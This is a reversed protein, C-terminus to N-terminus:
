PAFINQIQARHFTTVYDTIVCHPRQEFVCSSNKICFLQNDGANKDTVEYIVTRTLQIYIKEEVDYYQEEPRRDGTPLRESRGHGRDILHGCV